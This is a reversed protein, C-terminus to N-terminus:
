DTKKVKLTNNVVELLKSIKFPKILLPFKLDKKEFQTDGSIFIIKIKNNKIHIQTVLDIGNMVAMKIDVVLLDYDSPNSCIEQLAMLPDSFPRVSYGQTRIAETYLEALESEDDVVAIKRHVLLTSSSSSSSTLRFISLL